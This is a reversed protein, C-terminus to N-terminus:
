SPEFDSSYFRNCTVPRRVHQGQAIGEARFLSYYRSVTRSACQLERAIDRVKRGMQFAIKVESIETETLRMAKTRPKNWDDKKM